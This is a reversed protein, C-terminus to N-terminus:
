QPKEMIMDFIRRANGYFTDFNYTNKIKAQAARALRKRLSFDDTLRMMAEALASPNQRPVLLGNEENQVLEPIGGVSTAIVPLGANMAELLAYPFGERRSPFVFVDFRKLIEYVSKEFVGGMIVCGDLGLRHITKEVRLRNYIRGFCELKCGPHKKHVRAFAELLEDVGKERQVRGVYGFVCTQEPREAPAPRTEGVCNYLVAVREPAINRTTCLRHKIAASNVIYQKIRSYERYLLCDIFTRRTPMSVVSMAFRIGRKKAAAAMDFCSLAAPFGGNFAIVADCNHKRLFDGFLARNFWANELTFMLRIVPLQQVFDFLRRAWVNNSLRFFRLAAQTRINPTKIALEYRRPGLGLSHGDNNFFAGKNSVLLVPVVGRLSLFVDFLYRNGGGPDYNETYFAIMEDAKETKSM